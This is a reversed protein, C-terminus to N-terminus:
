KFLCNGTEPVPIATVQKDGYVDVYFAIVMLLPRSIVTTVCYLAHVTKAWEFVPITPEFGVCLM